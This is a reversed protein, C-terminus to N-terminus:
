FQPFNLFLNNTGASSESNSPCTKNRWKRTAFIIAQSQKNTSSLKNLLVNGYERDKAADQVLMHDQCKPSRPFEM